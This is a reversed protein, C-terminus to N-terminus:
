ERNELRDLRDALNLVFRVLAGVFRMSLRAVGQSEIDPENDWISFELLERDTQKNM